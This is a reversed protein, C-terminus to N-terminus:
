GGRAKDRVRPTAASQAKASAWERARARLGDFYAKDAVVGSLPSALGELLLGRLKERDQEKRILARVYESSSTYGRGAVQQDVFAKLEEPLSINMTSM